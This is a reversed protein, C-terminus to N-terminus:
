MLLPLATSTQLARESEAMRFGLIFNFGISVQALSLDKAEDIDRALDHNMSVKRFEFKGPIQSFAALCRQALREKCVLCTPSWIM